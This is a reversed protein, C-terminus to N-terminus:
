MISWQAPCILQSKFVTAQIRFRVPCKMFVVPHEPMDSGGEEAHKKYNLGICVISKPALPVLLKSVTATEGTDTPSDSLCGEFLTRQTKRNYVM